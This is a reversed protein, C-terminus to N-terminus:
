IYIIVIIKKNDHRCNQKDNQQQPGLIFDVRFFLSYPIDGGWSSHRRHLFGWSNIHFLRRLFIAM